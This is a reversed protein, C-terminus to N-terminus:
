SNVQSSPSIEWGQFFSLSLSLSLSFFPPTNNRQFHTLGIAYSRAHRTGFQLAAIGDRILRHPYARENVGAHAGRLTRRGIFQTFCTGRGTFEDGPKTRYNATATISIATQYRSIGHRRPRSPARSSAFLSPYSAPADTASAPALLASRPAPSPLCAPLCAPLIASTSSPPLRLPPLRLPLPIPFRPTVPSPGRSSCVLLPPHVRDSHCGHSPKLAGRRRSPKPLTGRAKPISKERKAV